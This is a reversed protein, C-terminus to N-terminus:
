KNKSAKNKKILRNKTDEWSYNKGVGNKYDEWRKDLENLHEESLETEEKEDEVFTKVVSLVAKKEKESLYPLYSIIKNDVTHAKM